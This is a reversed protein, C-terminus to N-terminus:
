KRAREQKDRSVVLRTPAQYITEGLSVQRVEGDVDLLVLRPQIDIVQVLHSPITLRGGRRAVQTSVDSTQSFWAGPNGQGDFTVATLMVQQLAVAGESSFLNRRVISQYAALDDFALRNSKAQSLSDERECRALGLAEIGLNVDLLRGGSVPNLALTRIKHLHGGGYFRYLLQTVQDLSGRGRLAFSYRKFVEKSKRTDRDKISVAVPTAADVSPQQLDVEAVLSLLWDQYLSRALESDYPLSYQELAMLEDTSGASNFIVDEAEKIQKDLRNAERALNQAPQEVFQRYGQDAMVGTAVVALGLLLFRTRANM